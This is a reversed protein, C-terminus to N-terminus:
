PEPRKRYASPSRGTLKRFVRSFYLPDRFGVQCAIVRIPTSTHRLMEKSQEIRYRNLYDWPSLGLDSHFVRSLYDESVGIADAIEWRALPRNYNQHLYAVARKVLSSTQKPLVHDGFLARHLAAIIEEDTLIGKSHLTVQTHRELRKVDELTLLKGSLIVVPVQRTAPEARMRDLLDFGDMGPMILDVIALSPVEQAMIALATEADGATRVPCGPMGQSLIDRYRERARADDDVVLISGTSASPAAGNIVDLLSRELMPKVAFSTLGVAPTADGPQAQGYLIFPFQRLRPHNYLRRILTWDGPCAHSLDWAVAAPQVQALVGDLDDGSALRCIEIGRRESFEIIEPAPRIAASILLLAQRTPECLRSVPESLSPLPLYVHFTSGQLPQSDLTMLGGHLAVLRRTISLGLGIGIRRRHDQDVAVFPEFIREQQDPPIGIGTDEVWLHLHPPSVQAGLTIHGRETFKLANSLLNLLIQRLRVPDAQIIPLRDPVQLHWAVSEKAAAHDAMSHFAEELLPRLAFPQLYLDLQDIEARSLDLLDNIVRLQHEASHQIHNLDELLAPPPTIGYPNPSSLADRIHELIINLPMRMEHSVNALLRTKIGDAKEAAARADLAARFLLAGKLASSITGRLVEYVIGDQPGIEFLVFGIQEEEFYLPEVLLSYRRHRPLVGEPVLERSPFPQGDPGLEIRGGETYALVLRSQDLPSDSDEYLALFCSDIGIRPLQRALVDALKDVDFTTILAQGIERLTASQRDAQWAKYAQVRQAAQGILVRAQGFLDEARARGAADLYPLAARRLISIVTHWRGPDGGAAMVGKLITELMPVFPEQGAHSLDAHFATLLEDVRGATEDSIVVQGRIQDLIAGQRAVFEGFPRADVDVPESKALELSQSVCGCSQRVVLQSHLTVEDPVPEGALRAMLMDVAQVGQEYFPLAVTTLPPMTLQGEASGNFGVVAVQGPVDFGRAQLTRLVDLALLDSVAVVADFDVGPRLRRSDLLARIAEGGAEWDVPRSVLASDLPIGREQLVDLFARYREQAYYHSEPGRIFALRRYGHVEILHIVLSRMGEYSDILLTPIGEMPRALTIMPLPDYRRHFDLVQAPTLSGAITSSWSVLGDLHGVQTLDYLVNRQSEPDDRPRLRGGPFCILNVDHKQAADTIGVWVTRAAGIHINATLFGITPRRSVPGAGGQLAPLGPKPNATM